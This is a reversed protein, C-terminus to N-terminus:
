VYKKINELNGYLCIPDMAMIEDSYSLDMPIENFLFIKKNNVYAQGMEILVNGGIYNEVDKKKLNVVLIADSELIHKYHARFYDNKKRHEADDGPKISEVFALKEGRVHAEYDAHIWGDHELKCLQNKYEVMEKVFSNSGLVYIKM